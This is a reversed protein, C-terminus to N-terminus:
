SVSSIDKKSWDYLHATNTNLAEVQRRRVTQIESTHGADPHQKIWHELDAFARPSFPEYSGQERILRQKKEESRLTFVFAWSAIGWLAIISAIMVIVAAISM